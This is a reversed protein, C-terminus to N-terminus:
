CFDIFPFLFFGDLNPFFIPSPFISNLIFDNLSQFFKSNIPMFNNLEEFILLLNSDSITSFNLFLILFALNIDLFYKINIIQLKFFINLKKICILPNTDYTQGIFSNHHHCFTFM